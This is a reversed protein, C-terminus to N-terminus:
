KGPAAIELERQLAELSAAQITKCGDQLAGFWGFWRLMVSDWKAGDRWTLVCKGGDAQWAVRLYGRSLVQGQSSAPELRQEFEFSTATAQMLVL